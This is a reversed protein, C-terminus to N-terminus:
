RDITARNVLIATGELALFMNKYIYFLLSQEMDGIIFDHMAIYHSHVCYLLAVSSRSHEM